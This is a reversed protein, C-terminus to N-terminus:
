PVYDNYNNIQEATFKYELLVSGTFEKGGPDRENNESSGSLRESIGGSLSFM